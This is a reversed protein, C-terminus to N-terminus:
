KMNMNKAQNYIAVGKATNQQKKQPAMSVPHSEKNGAARDKDMSTKITGPLTKYIQIGPIELQGIERYSNYSM